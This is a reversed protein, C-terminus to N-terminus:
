GSSARSCRSCGGPPPPAQLRLPRPSHRLSLRAPAPLSCRPSSPTRSTPTPPRCASPCCPLAPRAHKHSAFMLRGLRVWSSRPPTPPLLLLAEMSGKSMCFSVPHYAAV